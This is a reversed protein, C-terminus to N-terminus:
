QLLKRIYMALGHLLLTILYAAGGVWAIAQILNITDSTYEPM